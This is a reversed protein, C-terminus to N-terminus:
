VLKQVIFLLIKMLENKNYFLAIISHKVFAHIKLLLLFVNNKPNSIHQLDNVYCIYNHPLTLFKRPDRSKMYNHQWM